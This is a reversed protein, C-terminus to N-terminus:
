IIIVHAGIQLFVVDARIQSVAENAKAPASQGDTLALILLRDDFSGSGYLAARSTHAHTVKNCMDPSV